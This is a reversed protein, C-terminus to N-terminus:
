RAVAERGQATGAPPTTLGWTTSKRRLTDAM